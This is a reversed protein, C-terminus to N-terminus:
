SARRVGLQSEHRGLLDHPARLLGVRGEARVRRLMEYRVQVLDRRDFFDNKSFHEDEVSAPDPHLAGVSRLADRKPDPQEKKQAM